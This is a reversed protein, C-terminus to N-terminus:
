KMKSIDEKLQPHVRFRAKEAAKVAEEAQQKLGAMAYLAALNNYAEGMGPNVAVAARWEREADELQGNRFYASGLALSLESPPVFPGDNSTRKRDLEQMQAEMKTLRLTMNPGPMQQVRRIADRLERMEDDRQKEVAVRDRQSLGHLTELAQRAGIFAQVASAYRRLAMYSEGLSHHALTMLRDKEIAKGFAEAAQEFRERSLLEQGDRYHRLAERRDQESAFQAFAPGTAVATLVIAALAIFLRSAM